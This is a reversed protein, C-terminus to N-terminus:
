LGSSLLQTVGGSETESLFGGSVLKIIALECFSGCVTISLINHDTKM